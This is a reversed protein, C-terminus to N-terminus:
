LKIGWKPPFFLKIPNQNPQFKSKIRKRASTLEPLRVRCYKDVECFLGQADIAHIKRGFLGDFKLCLRDFEQAQNEVMWRITQEPTFDGLDEFIKNLGRLAGPGAVTFDNESFDVLESYNIDIATQYSMFNGYLPFRRLSKYVEELSKATLIESAINEELFMHKFLEVHNLHKSGMGYADNACLIFASTYIPSNKSKLETLANEFNGDALDQVTPFRGLLKRLGEWTEIKSFNRFAIIQFLTDADTRLETGYCVDRIMYQSVRDTARFVNCFKYAQLIPDATWPPRDNNLRAYFVQQRKAAFEWYLKYVGDRPTPQRIKMKKPM